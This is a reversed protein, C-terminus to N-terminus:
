NRNLESKVGRVGNINRILSIAVDKQLEHHVTGALRVVGKESTVAFTCGDLSRHIMLEREAMREIREDDVPEVVQLLNAVRAYGLDQAVKGAAEAQARDGVRGRIVVIGGVEVVKLDDIATVGHDRFLQTLDTSKPQQSSAGYAAPLLLAALAVTAFRRIM